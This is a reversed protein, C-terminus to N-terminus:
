KIFLTCRFGLDGKGYPASYLYGAAAFGSGGDYYAGGRYIRADGNGNGTPKLTWERINGALDYINYASAGEYAGSPIRTSTGSAKTATNKSTNTYYTFSNNYYNGWSTSDNVLESYSKKYSIILNKLTEDWQIGWIM